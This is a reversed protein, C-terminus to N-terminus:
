GLFNFLTTRPIQAESQLAAQEQTQSQNLQLISSTVDADQLSAIQTQLQVTQTQGYNTAETIEDQTNGYFALQQNLYDGVNSLGTNATQIAASDNNALATELGTMATFVNTTPDGSDFITQATLSVPFPSGGSQQAVRTAASGLYASVPPTQTLDFTYPAQQDSDGSFIYRGGVSTNALGVMEQLIGGVQQALDSNTAATATTIDGEAALTQVQDFLTVASQLAQEGTDVETGFQGLNSSIQQTASLSARAALLTSIVDPADSVQNVLLGTTVQTQAQNMQDGIQNLNNLFQQTNPNLSSIM